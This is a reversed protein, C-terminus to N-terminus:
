SAQTETAPTSVDTRRVAGTVNSAAAKAQTRAGKSRESAKKAPGTNRVKTTVTKGRKIFDKFYKQTVKRDTLKTAGGRVKEVAFDGAGVVAYFLDQAKDM